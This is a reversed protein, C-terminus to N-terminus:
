LSLKHECNSIKTFLESNSIVKFQFQLKDTNRKNLDEESIFVNVIDYLEFIAFTKIFDREGAKYPKADSLLLDLAGSFIFVNVDNFASIALTLDLLERVKTFNNCDFICAVKSSM